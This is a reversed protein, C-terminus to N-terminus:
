SEDELLRESILDDAHVIKYDRMQLWSIVLWMAHKLMETSHKFTVTQGKEM